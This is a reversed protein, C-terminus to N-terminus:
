AEGTVVETNSSERGWESWSGDYVRSKLGLEHLGLSLGAATVGSGCSTIIPSDKDVKTFATELQSKSVLEGNADILSSLPVSTAGPMHGSRMGARPEKDVGTFRGAPRADAVCHKQALAAIVDSQDALFASRLDARPTYTVPVAARPEAATAFGQAKWQPLGGNLVLVNEHGFMQFTWWVRPASFLNKQDYVVVTDDTSIGMAGVAKAFIEPTPATHPLDSPTCVADIDFFQAGEIHAQAFLAAADKGENPLYFTGDLLKISEGDDLRRKLEAASILASAM